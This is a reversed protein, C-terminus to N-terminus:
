GLEAPDFQDIAAGGHHAQHNAHHDFAEGAEADEVLDAEPSQHIAVAGAAGLVQGEAESGLRSQVRKHWLDLNGSRHRIAILAQNLEL